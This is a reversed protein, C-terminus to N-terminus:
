GLPFPLPDSESESDRKRERKEMERDSSLPAIIAEVVFPGAAQIQILSEKRREKRRM